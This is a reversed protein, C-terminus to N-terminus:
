GELRKSFASDSTRRSCEGCAGNRAFRDLDDGVANDLKVLSRVLLEAEVM